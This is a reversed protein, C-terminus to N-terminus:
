TIKKIIPKRLNSCYLLRRDNDFGFVNLPFDSVSVKIKTGFTFPFQKHKGDVAVTATRSKSEVEISNPHRIILGDTKYVGLEMDYRSNYNARTVAQFCKEEIPLVTGGPYSLAWAEQPTAIILGSSFQDEEFDKTRVTYRMTSHPDEPGVSVENMILHELKQSEYELLLRNLATAKIKGALFLPFTKDFNFPDIPAYFGESGRRKGLAEDFYVATNVAIIPTNDRIHGAAELFTGDGGVAMVQDYCKILEGCLDARYHADYKVGAKELANLTKELNRNHEADLRLLHAGDPTEELFKKLAPNDPDKQLHEQYIEYRSKMYVVLLRSM